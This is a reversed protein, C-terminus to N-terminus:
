VRDFPMISKSGDGFKTPTISFQSESREGHDNDNEVEETVKVTIPDIHRSRKFDLAYETPTSALFQRQNARVSKALSTARDNEQIFGLKIGRFVRCAMVSELAINPVTFTARYVPPVPALFM